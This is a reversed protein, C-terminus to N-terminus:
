LHVIKSSIKSVKKSCIQSIIVPMNKMYRVLIREEAFLMKLARIRLM